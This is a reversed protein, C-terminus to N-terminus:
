AGSQGGNTRAVRDGNGSEATSRHRGARCSVVVVVASSRPARRRSRGRRCLALSWAPLSSRPAPSSRPAQWARVVAAAAVGSRCRCSAASGSRPRSRRRCRRTRRRDRESASPSAAHFCCAVANRSSSESTPMLRAAACGEAIGTIAARVSPRRTCSFACSEVSWWRPGDATSRLASTGTILADFVSWAVSVWIVSAGGPVCDGAAAFMAFSAAISSLM